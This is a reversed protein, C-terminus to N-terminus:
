MKLSNFRKGETKKLEQELSKGLQKKNNVYKKKLKKRLTKL